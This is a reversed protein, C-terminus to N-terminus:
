FAVAERRGQRALPSRHAIARPQATRISANIALDSLDRM